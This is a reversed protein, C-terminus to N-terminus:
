RRLGSRPHELNKTAERVTLGSLEARHEDVFRRVASPNTWAYDRLAWGIAKRLFFEKEHARALCLRFLRQEDTRNRWGLQHLVAVRAIWFDSDNIWDDMEAVLAPHMAVLTGVGGALHDVTDWWSTTRIFWELEGLFSASQKPAASVMAETAVYHFEREPLTMLARCDAVLESDTPRGLPKMAARREPAPIGLFPAIGKMYARM